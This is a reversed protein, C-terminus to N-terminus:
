QENKKFILSYLAQLQKAVDQYQYKALASSEMLQIVSKRDDFMTDFAKSFKLPLVAIDEGIKEHVANQINLFSHCKFWDKFNDGRQKQLKTAVVIVNQNLHLVEALTNLGALISKYEDYIPVIVWDSQEIASSISRASASLSGALDFIIDIDDPITPFAQNLDLAIFKEEPLLEDYIHYPENTWVAFDHDFAFNCAIPTKGAWGKTSYVTIKM